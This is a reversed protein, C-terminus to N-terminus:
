DDPVSGHRQPFLVERQPQWAGKATARVIHWAVPIACGRILVPISPVTFRQGLTSADMALTLHQCDPPHLAVM